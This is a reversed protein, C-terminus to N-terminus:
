PGVCFSMGDVEDAEREPLELERDAPRGLPLLVRRRGVVRDLICGRLAAIEAARLVLELLRDVRRRVVRELVMQDVIRRQVHLRQDVGIRRRDRVARVADDEITRRVRVVVTDGRQRRGREGRLDVIDGLMPVIRLHADEDILRVRRTEASAPKTGSWTGYTV